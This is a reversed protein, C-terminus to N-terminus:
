ASGPYRCRLPFGFYRANSESPNVTTLPFYVTKAGSSSKITRSLVDGRNGINSIIGSNTNVFGSRVFALPLQVINTASTTSIINSVNIRRTLKRWIMGAIKLSEHYPREHQKVM